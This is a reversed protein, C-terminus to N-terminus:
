GPTPPLLPGAPANPSAARAGGRPARSQWYWRGPLRERAGPKWTSAIPTRPRLRLSRSKERGQRRGTVRAPLPAPSTPWAGSGNGKWPRASRGSGPFRNAPTRRVLWGMQAPPPPLNGDTEVRASVWASFSGPLSEGRNLPLARKRMPEWRGGSWVRASTRVAARFVVPALAQLRVVRLPHLISFVRWVLSGPGAQM